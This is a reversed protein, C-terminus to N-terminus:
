FIRPMPVFPRAVPIPNLRRAEDILRYVEQWKARVLSLSIGGRSPEGRNWEESKDIESRSIERSSILWAAAYAAPLDEAGEPVSITAAGSPVAPYTSWRYPIKYTVLLDDADAIYRPLRVIKGTSLVSTPIDDFFRWGDLEVFRGTNPVLYGVRYVDRCSEPMQVYQFTATRNFTGSTLLPLGLVEMRTFARRVGEAVRIRPWTPNVTGTDGAPHAVATTGFYGRACTYIPDPDTNKGTVLVLEDGFEVLDSTNVPDGVLMFTTDSAGLADTGLVVRRGVEAPGQLELLARDVLTSLAVSVAIM